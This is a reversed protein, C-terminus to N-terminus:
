CLKNKNLIINSLQSMKDLMVVLYDYLHVPNEVNSNM